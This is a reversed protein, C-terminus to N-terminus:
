RRAKELNGVFCSSSLNSCSILLVLYASRLVATCSMYQAMRLLLSNRKLWQGCGSFILFGMGDTGNNSNMGNRRNTHPVTDAAM